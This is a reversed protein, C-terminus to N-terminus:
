DVYGYFFGHLFRWDAGGVHWEHLLVAGLRHLGSRHEHGYGVRWETDDYECERFLRRGVLAHGLLYLSCAPHLDADGFGIRRERDANGYLERAIARQM